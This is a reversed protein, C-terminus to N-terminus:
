YPNDGDVVTAAALTPQAQTNHLAFAAEKTAALATELLAQDSTPDILGASTIKWAFWGGKGNSDAFTTLDYKAAFIPPRVGAPLSPIKVGLITKAWNRAWKLQTGNFAILGQKWYLGDKFLILFTITYVLENQGLYEKFESPTGPTGKRYDRHSTITLPMNGAFGGKNPKWMTYATTQAIPVVSLPQPLVLREPEFLINGPRCGDIRKDAYSRHTEDFEPSGKQIINLFPQGLVAKDITDTGVGSASAYDFSM